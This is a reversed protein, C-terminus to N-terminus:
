CWAGIMDYKSGVRYSLNPPKSSCSFCSMYSSVNGIFKADSSIVGDSALHIDAVTGTACGWLGIFDSIPSTFSQQDSGAKHKIRLRKFMTKWSGRKGNMFRGRRDVLWQSLQGNPSTQIAHPFHMMGEKSINVLRCNRETGTPTRMYPQMVYGPDTGEKVARLGDPHDSLTRKISQLRVNFEKMMDSKTTAPVCTFRGTHTSYLVVSYKTAHHFCELWSDSCEKVIYPIILEPLIDPMIVWNKTEFALREEKDAFHLIIKSGVYQIIGTVDSAIDTAGGGIAIDYSLNTSRAAVNAAISVPGKLM